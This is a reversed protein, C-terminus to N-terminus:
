KMQIADIAKGYLGAYSNGGTGNSNRSDVWDLWSGNVLHVRYSVFGQSSWIRVGDIKKGYIGSYSNSNNKDNKKYSKSSVKPLWEGGLVHTQITIEGYKSVARLGGIDNGLNGAYDKDNIVEPLWLGKKNDYTQYTIDGTIGTPSPQPSKGPLDSNIYPTPDIKVDSTNRVEFHLHAGFSYGTNGMYGIVQGKKVRDGVNVTVSGYRLHAYLTYYGNDHKIKVYNGYSGGSSYNKTEDKRCSVVVGDSHAVIHDCCYWQGVIDIGNHVGYKYKNTIQNLRSKLVRSM